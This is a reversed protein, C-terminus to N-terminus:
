GPAQKDHAAWGQAWLFLLEVLVPDKLEFREAWPSIPVVPTQALESIVSEVVSGSLRRESWDREGGDRRHSTSSENFAALLCPERGVGPACLVVIQLRSAVSLCGPSEAILLCMGTYRPQLFVDYPPLTPPTACHGTLPGVTGSLGPKLQMVHSRCPLLAVARGDGRPIVGGCVASCDGRPTLPWVPGLWTASCTRLLEALPSLECILPSWFLCAFSPVLSLGPLLLILPLVSFEGSGGSRLSWGARVVRM